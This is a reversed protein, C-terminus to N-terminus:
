RDVTMWCNLLLGKPSRRPAHAGSQPKRFFGMAPSNIAQAWGGTPYPCPLAALERILVIRARAHHVPM